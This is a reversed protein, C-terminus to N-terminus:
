SAIVFAAFCTTTVFVAVIWFVAIPSLLLLVMWLVPVILQHHCYFCGSVTVFTSCNVLQSLLMCLDCCLLSEAINVINNNSCFCCDMPPMLWGATVFFSFCSAPVFTVLLVACHSCCYQSV